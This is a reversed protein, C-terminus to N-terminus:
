WLINYSWFLPSNLDKSNKIYMKKFRKIFNDRRKDDNHILYDDYRSDGFHIQNNNEKLIVFYKKNKRKSYGTDIIQTDLKKKKIVDNLYQLSVLHSKNNM